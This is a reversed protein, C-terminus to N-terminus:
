MRFVRVCVLYVNNNITKMMTSGLSWFYQYHEASNIIKRSDMKLILIANDIWIQASNMHIVFLTLVFTKGKILYRTIISMDRDKVKALSEFM